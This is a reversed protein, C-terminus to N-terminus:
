RDDPGDYPRRRARRQPRTSATDLGYATDLGSATDLGEGLGERGPLPRGAAEMGVTARETWRSTERGSGVRVSGLARPRAAIRTGGSRDSTARWLVALSVGSSPRTSLIPCSPNDLSATPNATTPPPDDSVRPQGVPFGGPPELNALRGRPGTSCDQIWPLWSCRRRPGERPQGRTQEPVRPGACDWAGESSGVACESWGRTQSLGSIARSSRQCATRRRNATVHRM